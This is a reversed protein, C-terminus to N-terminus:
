RHEENIQQNTENRVSAQRNEPTARVMCFFSRDPSSLWRSLTLSSWSKTKKDANM